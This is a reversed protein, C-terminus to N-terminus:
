WCFHTQKPIALSNCNPDLLSHGIGYALGVFSLFMIKHLFLLFNPPSQKSCFDVPSLCSNVTIIIEWWCLQQPLSNLMCRERRSALFHHDKGMPSEETPPGESLQVPTLAGGAPRRAENWCPKGEWMVLQALPSPSCNKQELQLQARLREIGRNMNRQCKGCPQESRGLLWGVRGEGFRGVQCVASDGRKISFLSWQVPTKEVKELIDQSGIQKEGSWRGWGLTLDRDERVQVM